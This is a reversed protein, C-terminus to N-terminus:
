NEGSNSDNENLRGFRPKTTELAITSEDDSQNLAPFSSLIRM